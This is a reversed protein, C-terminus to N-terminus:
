SSVFQTLAPVAQETGLSPGVVYSSAGSRSSKATNKRM